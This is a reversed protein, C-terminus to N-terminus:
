AKDYHTFLLTAIAETQADSFIQPDGDRVIVLRREADVTAIFRELPKAPRTAAAARQARPAHKKKDHKKRRQPPTAEPATAGFDHDPLGVRRNNSKGVGKLTGANLMKKMHYGLSSLPVDAANALQAPSVPRGLDKLAATIKDQM